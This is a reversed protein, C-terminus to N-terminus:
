RDNNLSLDLSVAPVTLPQLGWITQLSPNGVTCRLYTQQTAIAMLWFECDGSHLLMGIEKVLSEIVCFMSGRRDECCVWYDAAWKLDGLYLVVGKGVRCSRVVCRMEDLKEEVEERSMKEFSLLPLSTFHLSKLDEPVEGKKAGDMLVRVVGEASALCEGLIVISRKQRGILTKVVTMVDENGISSSQHRGSDAKSNPNPNPNPSAAMELSVAKEVNAKVQTSSFGAERMVRSVSPDDLISIILQEVDIRVALMPQQQADVASGRRQHAQARKFAAVLANSLSPSQHHTRYPGMLIQSSSPLRNLAVNFCLDLAKCRLPHSPAHSQLCAARLLGTPISLMTTAVHLPTVQAHGRRRALSVAQKVMASAEPTLSQQVM